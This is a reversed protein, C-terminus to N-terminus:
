IATDPDYIAQASLGAEEDSYTKFPVRRTDWIIRHVLPDETEILGALYDFDEYDLNTRKWYPMGYTRRVHDYWWEPTQDAPRTETRVDGTMDGILAATRSIALVPM